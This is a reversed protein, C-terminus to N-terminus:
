ARLREVAGWAAGARKPVNKIDRRGVEFHELTVYTPMANGKRRPALFLHSGARQGGFKPQAMRM